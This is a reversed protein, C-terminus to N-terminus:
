GARGNRGGGNRLGNGSGGMLGQNANSAAALRSQQSAFRATPLITLPTFGANPGREFMMRREFAESQFFPYRRYLDSRIANADTSMLTLEINYKGCNKRPEVITNALFVRKYFASHQPSVLQLVRDANFYDTAMTAIRLTFYPIAPMERMIAPDAAFRVPDILSMGADLFADIEEPYVSRTSSVRHDPTVHHIRVTSILREEFYVGFNYAHSDYDIDDILTTGKLTLIDAMKYAKYRIRAVEEMDETSEVRRYEVRDLLDMLKRSFNGEGAAHDLM